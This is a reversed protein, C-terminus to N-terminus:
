LTTSSTTNSPVSPFANAESDIHTIKAQADVRVEELFIMHSLTDLLHRDRTTQVRLYHYALGPFEGCNQM